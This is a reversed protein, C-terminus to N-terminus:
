KETYVDLLRPGVLLYRLTGENDLAQAMKEALDDTITVLRVKKPTM